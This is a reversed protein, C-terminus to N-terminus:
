AGRWVLLGLLFFYNLSSMQIPYRQISRKYNYKFGWDCEILICLRRLTDREWEIRQYLFIYFNMFTALHTYKESFM